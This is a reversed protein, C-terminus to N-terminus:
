TACTLRFTPGRKTTTWRPWEERTMWGCCEDADRASRLSSFTACSTGLPNVILQLPASTGQRAGQRV